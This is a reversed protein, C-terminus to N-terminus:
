KVTYVVNDFAVEGSQTTDRFGLNLQSGDVNTGSFVALQMPLTKSGITVSGQISLSMNVVMPQAELVVHTWKNAPLSAFAPPPSFTTGLADLEMGLGGDDNWSAGLEITSAPPGPTTLVLSAFTASDTWENVIM